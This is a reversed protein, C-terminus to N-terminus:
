YIAYFGWLTDGGHFKAHLPIKVEEILISQTPWARFLLNSCFAAFIACNQQL